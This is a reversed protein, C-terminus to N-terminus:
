YKKLISMFTRYQEESLYQAVIQQINTVEQETLGSEMYESISQWAQQPLKTALLDFMEDREADTLQGSSGSIEETSAGTGGAGAKPGTGSGSGTIAGEEEQGFADIAVPEGTTEDEAKSGSETGNTGATGSGTGSTVGAASGGGEAGGTATSGEGNSKGDASGGSKGAGASSADENAGAGDITDGEGTGDSKGSGSANNDTGKDAGDATKGAQGAEAISTGQEVPDAGWMKGWVGSLAFPQVELPLNYQKLISELYSNVIYGTTWISLFSAILGVAIARGIWGFMKWM